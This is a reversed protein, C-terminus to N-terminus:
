VYKVINDTKLSVFVDKGKTCITSEISKEVDMMWQNEPLYRMIKQKQQRIGNDNVFHIIFMIDDTHCPTLSVKIMTGKDLGESKLLRDKGKYDTQDNKKTKVEIAFIKNYDIQFCNKCSINMYEQSIAKFILSSNGRNDEVVDQLAVIRQSILFLVIASQLFM